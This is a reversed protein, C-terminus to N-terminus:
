GGAGRQVGGGEVGAKCIQSRLMALSSSFEDLLLLRAAMFGRQSTRQQFARSQQQATKQMAHLLLPLLLLAAVSAYTAASGATTAAALPLLLPAAAVTRPASRRAQGAEDQGETGKGKAAPARPSTPFPSWGRLRRTRRQHPPTPATCGPAARSCSWGRAPPRSSLVAHQRHMGGQQRQFPPSRVALEKSGTAAWSVSCGTNSAAEKLRGWLASGRGSSCISLRTIPPPRGSIGARSRRGPRSVWLKAPLHPKCAAHVGSPSLTNHHPGVAAATRLGSLWPEIQPQQQRYAAPATAVQLAPCSCSAPAASSTGSGAPGGRM